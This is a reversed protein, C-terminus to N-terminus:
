KRTGRMMDILSKFGRQYLKPVYGYEQELRRMDRNVVSEIDDLPDNNNVTDWRYGADITTRESDNM